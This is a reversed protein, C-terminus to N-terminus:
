PAHDARRRRARRRLGRGDRGADRRPRALEGALDLVADETGSLVVSAPGNVAAIGVLGDREPLLPLVAKKAARVAVMAGGAPLSQMLRARAAVLRCADVVSLVGAVTCRPWNESRTGQSMTRGSEGSNSCASCHSDEVTTM